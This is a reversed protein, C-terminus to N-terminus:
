RPVVRIDGFGRIMVGSLLLGRLQAKTDTLKLQLKKIAVEVLVDEFGDKNMDGYSASQKGRSEIPAGALTTNALDIQRVELDGAGFITVRVTGGSGLNITNEKNDPRIDISVPIFPIMTQGSGGNWLDNIEQESLVKKWVGLEDLKGDIDKKIFGDMATSISGDLTDSVVDLARSVNDIYIRVGSARSSGDYTFVAYHWAGDSFIDRTQVQILRDEDFRRSSMWFVYRGDSDVYFKWGRASASRGVIHADTGVSAIQVWAGGSFSDTNEFGLVYGPSSAGRLYDDVGGVLGKNVKGAVFTPNGAIYTLAASWFDIEDEMKLYSVLNDTLTGGTDVQFTKGEAYIARTSRLFFFQFLVVAGALAIVGGGLLLYRKKKPALKHNKM